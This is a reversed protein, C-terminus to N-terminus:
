GGKGTGTWHFCGVCRGYYRLAHHGFGGPLPGYREARPCRVREAEPLVRPRLRGEILLIQRQYCFSPGIDLSIDCSYHGSARKVSGVNTVADRHIVPPRVTLIIPQGSHRGIQNTTVHGHHGGILGSSRSPVHPIRRVPQNRAQLILTLQTSALDVQSASWCRPIGIFFDSAATPMATSHPIAGTCLRASSVVAAGQTMPSIAMKDPGAAVTPARKCLDNAM